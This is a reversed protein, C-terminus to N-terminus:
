TGATCTRIDLRGTIGINDLPGALHLRSTLTGHVGGDQGRMLATM